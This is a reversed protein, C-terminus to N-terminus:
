KKNKIFEKFFQDCKIIDSEKYLVLKISDINSKNLADFSANCLKKFMLEVEVQGSGTFIMPILLSTKSDKTFLSITKFISELNVLAENKPNALEILLLRKIKLENVPLEQSIWCPTNTFSKNKSLEEVKINKDSLVKIISGNTKTYDNPFASVILYDSSDYNNLTSIDGQCLELLKCNGNNSFALQNIYNLGM